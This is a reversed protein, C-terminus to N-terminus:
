GPLDFPTGKRIPTVNTPPATEICRFQEANPHIFKIPSLMDLVTASRDEWKYNEDKYLEAPYISKLVRLGNRQELPPGQFGHRVALKYDDWLQPMSWRMHLLLHCSLCVPLYVDEVSYDENHGHIAGETQFCVACQSPRLEPHEKWTREMRRGVAERHKGPFGNYDSLAM